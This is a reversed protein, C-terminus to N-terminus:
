QFLLHAVAKRHSRKHQFVQPLSPDLFKLFLPHSIPLTSITNSVNVNFNCCFQPHLGGTRSGGKHQIWILTASIVVACRSKSIYFQLPQHLPMLCQGCHGAIIVPKWCHLFKELLGILLQTLDMWRILIKKLSNLCTYSTMVCAVNHAYFTKRCCHM